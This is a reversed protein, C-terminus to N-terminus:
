AAVEQHLWQLSITHLEYAQRPERERRVANAPVDFAKRLTVMETESPAVRPRSAALIFSHPTRTLSIALGGGLRQYAYGFGSPRRVEDYMTAAMEVLTLREAM